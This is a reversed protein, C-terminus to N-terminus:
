LLNYFWKTAPEFVANVPALPDFRYWLHWQVLSTMVLGLVVLSASVSLERWLRKQWLARWQVALLGAFLIGLWIM